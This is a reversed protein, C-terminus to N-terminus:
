QALALGLPLKLQTYTADVPINEVYARNAVFCLFIGLESKLSVYCQLEVKMTVLALTVRFIAHRHPVKLFSVQHAATSRQKQM